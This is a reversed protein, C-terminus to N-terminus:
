IINEEMAGHIRWNIERIKKRSSHKKVLGLYSSFNKEELNDIVKKWNRKKLRRGLPFIDVGIFHIGQKPKIIIDNKPNIRLNM